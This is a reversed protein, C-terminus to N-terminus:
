VLTSTEGQSVASRNMSQQQMPLERRGAFLLTDSAPLGRGIKNRPWVFISKGSQWSISFDGLACHLLFINLLLGNNVLCLICVFLIKIQQLFLAHTFYSSKFSKIESSILLSKPSLQQERLQLVVCLLSVCCEFLLDTVSDNRM